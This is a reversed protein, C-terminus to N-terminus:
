TCGRSAIPRQGLIRSLAFVCVGSAQCNRRHRRAQTSRSRYRLPSHASASLVQRRPVSMLSIYVPCVIFSVVFPHLSVLFSLFPSLPTGISARGLLVSHSLSLYHMGRHHHRDTGLLAVAPFITIQGSLLGQRGRVVRSRKM